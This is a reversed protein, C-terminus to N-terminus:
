QIPFPKLTVQGGKVVVKFRVMRAGHKKMLAAENQKLKQAFGDFTLGDTGEGTQKRAAVYEDFTRKLYADEAEEALAALEPSTQPGTTSADVSLEGGWRQNGNDSDGGLDDDSPDPRGLLRALMVNLGNALGEFDKSPSDFSYERNGNIVEAVGGEISDLPQLFRTATLVVAGMAVLFAVLGLAMVLFEVSSIGARAATLSTLVAYGSKSRTLNGPLPGAAAL